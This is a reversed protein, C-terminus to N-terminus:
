FNWILPIPSKNDLTNRIARRSIGRFFYKPLKKNCLANNCGGGINVIKFRGCYSKFNQCNQHDNEFVGEFNLSESSELLPNLAMM